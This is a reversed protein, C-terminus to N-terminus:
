EKKAIICRANYKVEKRQNTIIAQCKKPDFILFINKNFKHSQSFLNLIKCFTGIRTKSTIIFKM